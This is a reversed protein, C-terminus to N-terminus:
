DDYQFNIRVQSNAIRVTGEADVYPEFSWKEVAKVAAAGFATATDPEVSLVSVNSLSGDTNVTFGIEASGSIGRQEYRKPYSPAVRSTASLESLVVDVPATPRTQATQSDSTIQNTKQVAFRADSLRGLESTLANNDVGADYAADLFKQAATFDNAETSTKAKLLLANAFAQKLQVLNPDTPNLSEIRKIFYQANNQAPTLLSDGQIATQANQVFQEIKNSQNSQNSPAPTPTSSASSRTRSGATGFVDNAMSTLKSADATNGAALAINASDILTTKKEDLLSEITSAFAQNKAARQRATNVSQRARGTNGNALHIDLDGFIYKSLGTLANLATKNKADLDLVKIYSDLANNKAPPFFNNNLLAAQATQLLRAIQEQKAAEVNKLAQKPPDGSNDSLLFWAGGVVTILGILAFIPILKAQLFNGAKKAGITPKNSSQARQPAPTPKNPVTKQAAPRPPVPKAPAPRPPMPKPPAPKPAAPRPAAAKPPTPNPPTPKPPTPKPPAPKSKVPSTKELFIDDIHDDFSFTDETKPKVPNTKELFIDSDYAETSDQSQLVQPKKGQSELHNVAATLSIKTQGPSLPTMLVRFADNSLSTELLAAKQERPCVLLVVMANNNKKLRTIAQDGESKALEFDIICLSPKLRKTLTIGEALNRANVVEYTSGLISGVSQIIQPSATLVLLTANETSM